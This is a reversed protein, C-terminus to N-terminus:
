PERKVIFGWNVRIHVSKPGTGKAKSWAKAVACVPIATTLPLLVRVAGSISMLNLIVFIPVAKNTLPPVLVVWYLTGLKEVPLEGPAKFDTVVSSVVARVVSKRLKVTVNLLPGGLSPSLRFAKRTLVM